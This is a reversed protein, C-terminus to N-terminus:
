CFPMAPSFSPSLKLIFIYDGWQVPVAGRGAGAGERVAMHGRAGM